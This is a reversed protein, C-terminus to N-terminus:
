DILATTRVMARILDVLRDNPLVHVAQMGVGRAGEVSELWDDFFVAEAPTIALRDAAALYLAPDPKALREEATIVIVDFFDRGVRAEIMARADSMAGTIVGLQYRPKLSALYTLAASDWQALAAFDSGLATADNILLGLDAAVAQWYQEASFEGIIAAYGAPHGFVREVLTTTPMDLRAAWHTVPAHDGLHILVGGLDFLLAKIM